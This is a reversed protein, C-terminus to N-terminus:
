RDKLTLTTIQGIQAQTRGPLSLLAGIAIFVSGKEGARPCSVGSMPADRRTCPQNTCTDNLSGRARSTTRNEGLRTLKWLLRSGESAKMDGRTPFSSETFMGTDDYEKADDSDSFIDKQNDNYNHHDSPSGQNSRLDLIISREIM